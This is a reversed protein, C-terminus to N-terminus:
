ESSQLIKKLKPDKKLIVSKIIGIGYNMCINSFEPMSMNCADAYAKIYEYRIGTFKEIVEKECLPDIDLFYNVGVELALAIKKLTIIKPTKIGLEYQRISEGHMDTLKGLQKQTWGKEKRKLKIKEGVIM